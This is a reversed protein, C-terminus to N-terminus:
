QNVSGAIKGEAIRAEYDLNDPNDAIADLMDKFAKDAVAFNNGHYWTNAVLIQQAFVGLEPDNIQDKILSKVAAVRRSSNLYLKTMEPQAAMFQVFDWAEVKNRSKSSVTEVWYDVVNKPDNRGEIQIFPKVEFSLKPARAKIIPIDYSYGFFIALNGQIFMELSNPLTKNWSYVDKTPNAFDTYFRIADIGPNYDKERVYQRFLVKGQDDVITTGNQLILAALIDSAREINAGTGLAVGAQLIEGNGSQKTLKKIDRQFQKNWYPSLEVIGANNLLDKNYFTGLTDIALPLAYIKRTNARLVPDYVELTVDNYVTDLFNSKLSALTLSTKTRLEPFTEKKLTGRVVPYAMTIQAPMPSMKNEYRKVWTSNISFIDPGRDEALANLLEQEYEDYRLKRYNITINPHIKNYEGIIQAFNDPGDWVRWYNITIPRMKVQVDKSVTKCGFGSALVVTLLLSLALIRRKMTIAERAGSRIHCM